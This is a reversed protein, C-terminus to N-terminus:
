THQGRRFRNPVAELNVGALQLRGTTNTIELQVYRGQRCNINHSEVVSQLTGLNIGNDDFTVGDTDMVVSYDERYPTAFDDNANTADYAAANFPRFYRTRDRTEDTALALTKNVGEFSATVSYTPNWTNVSVTSAVPRQFARMTEGFYGRTRARFAIEETGIGNDRSADVIEDGAEREEYLNVFADAGVYFLREEGNLTLKFWEVPTIASGSDLPTWGLRASEDLPSNVRQATVFDYVLVATNIHSLTASVTTDL